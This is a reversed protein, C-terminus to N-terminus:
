HEYIYNTLQCATKISTNYKVFIATCQECAAKAFLSCLMNESASFKQLFRSTRINLQDAVPLFNFYFQCEKVVASNGTSFLKMFIRTLSFQLSHKQHSLLPCAETAYLLIPMCKTRLLNIVVSESAFRGVKGFISNFARFFRSKADHLCCRLSRGSCFYVGLYRCSDTWQISGGNSTKLEECQENFRPGFRICTSKKVNIVMDLECLEKECVSLLAQLGTVTPCLILIDDAYLFISCCVSSIYCGINQSSGIM